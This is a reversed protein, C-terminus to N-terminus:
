TKLKKVEEKLSKNEEMCKMVDIKLDTYRQSLHTMQQEHTIKYIEITAKLNAVTMISNYVESNKKRKALLWGLLFGITVGLIILIIVWTTTM